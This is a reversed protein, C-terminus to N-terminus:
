GVEIDWCVQRKRQKMAPSSKLARATLPFRIALGERKKVHKNRLYIHGSGRSGVHHPCRRLTAPVSTRSAPPFACDFHTAWDAADEQGGIGFTETFATAFVSVILALEAADTATNPLSLLGMAVRSMGAM